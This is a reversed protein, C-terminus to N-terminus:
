ACKAFCQLLLLKPKKVKDIREGGSKIFGIDSYIKFLLDVNYEDEISLGASYHIGNGFINKVTVSELRVNEVGDIHIGYILSPLFCRQNLM